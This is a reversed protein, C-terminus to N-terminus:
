LNACNQTNQARHMEWLMGLGAHTNEKVKGVCIKTALDIKRKEKHTGGDVTGRLM